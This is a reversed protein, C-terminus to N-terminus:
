CRLWVPLCQETSSEREIKATRSTSEFDRRKIDPFLFNSFIHAKHPWAIPKLPLVVTHLGYKDRGVSEIHTRYCVAGRHETIQLVEEGLLTKDDSVATTCGRERQRAEGGGAGRAAGGQNPSQSQVKVNPV